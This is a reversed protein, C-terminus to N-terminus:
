TSRIENHLWINGGDVTRKNNIKYHRTILTYPSGEFVGVRNYFLDLEQEYTKVMAVILQEAFDHGVVIDQDSMKDITVIKNVIHHYTFGGRNTFTSLIKIDCTQFKKSILVYEKM